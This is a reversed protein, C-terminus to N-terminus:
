WVVRCRTGCSGNYREVQKVNVGSGYIPRNVASPVRGWIESLPVAMCIGGGTSNGTSTDCYTAYKKLVRQLALKALATYAIVYGDTRGDTRGDSEPITEFRLFV